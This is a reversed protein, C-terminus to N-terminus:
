ARCLEAGGVGVWRPGYSGQTHEPRGWAGKSMSPIHREPWLAPPCNENRVQTGMYSQAPTGKAEAPSIHLSHFQGQGPLCCSRNGGRRLLALPRPSVQPKEPPEEWHPQLCLGNRAGQCGWLLLAPNPAPDSLVKSVMPAPSHPSRPISSSPGPSSQVSSQLLHHSSGGLLLGQLGEM